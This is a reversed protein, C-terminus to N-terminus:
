TQGNLDLNYHISTSETKLALIGMQFSVLILFVFTKAYESNLVTTNDEHNTSTETSPKGRSFDLISFDLISTSPM